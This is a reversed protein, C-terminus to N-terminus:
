STKTSTTPVEYENSKVLNGYSNGTLSPPHDTQILRTLDFFWYTFSFDNMLNEDFQVFVPIHTTAQNNINEDYEIYTRDDNHDGFYTTDVTEGFQIGIGAERPKTAYANEFFTILLLLLLIVHLSRFRM